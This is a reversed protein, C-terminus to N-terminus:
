KIYSTAFLDVYKDAFINEEILVESRELAPVQRHIRTVLDESHGFWNPVNLVARRKLLLM